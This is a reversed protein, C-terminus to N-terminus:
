WIREISGFILIVDAVSAFATLVLENQLMLKNPILYTLGSKSPIEIVINGDAATTTGFELTLTVATTHNNTAYLEICDWSSAGAVATHITTGTTSTAAVKIAKGNTSGSLKEKSFTAM